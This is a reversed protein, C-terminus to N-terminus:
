SRTKPPGKGTAALKRSGDSYVFYIKGHELIVVPLDAQFARRRAIKGAGKFSVQKKKSASKRKM